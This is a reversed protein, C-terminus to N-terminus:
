KKVLFCGQKRAELKKCLSQAEADNPLNVLQLRYFTGKAGLDAKEITIQQSGLLEAHQRKLKAWVGEAEAASKFAGLQMRVGTKSAAKPLPAKPAVAEAVIPAAPTATPAAPTKEMAPTAVSASPQAPAEAKHPLPELVPESLPKAPTEPDATATLLETKTAAPQTINALLKQRAEAMERESTSLAPAPEESAPVIKEPTVLPTALPTTNSRTIAEYVTKDRHPIEMGGPEQPKVRLPTGDSKVLPVDEAATPATGAKYAYWTLWSFGGVLALVFLLSFGRFRNRPPPQVTYNSYYPNGHM